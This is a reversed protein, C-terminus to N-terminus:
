NGGMSGFLITAVESAPTDTGALATASMVLLFAINILLYVIMVISLGLIIAKPLDKKPNKMEGAINGVHIWGDYAFMTALLASGLASIFSINTGAEIPFLQFTVDGQHLLGMGM